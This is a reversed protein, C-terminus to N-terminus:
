PKADINVPGQWYSGERVVIWTAVDGRILAWGSHKSM